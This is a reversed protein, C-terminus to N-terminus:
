AMFRNESGLWPASGGQGGKVGLSRRPAATPTFRPARLKLQTIATAFSAEGATGWLPSPPSHSWPSAKTRIYGRSAVKIDFDGANWRFKSKISSGCCM